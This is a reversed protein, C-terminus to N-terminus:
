RHHIVTTRVKRFQEMNCGTKSSVKLVRDCIECFAQFHVRNYPFDGITCSPGVSHVIKRVSKPTCLLAFGVIGLTWIVVM